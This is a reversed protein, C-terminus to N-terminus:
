KISKVILAATLGGAIFELVTIKTNLTRIKAKQEKSYQEFLENVERLLNEQKQSSAIVLEYNKLLKEHSAKLEALEKKLQRSEELTELLRKQTESSSLLLIENIQKSRISDNLLQRITEEKVSVTKASCVTPLLLLFCLLLSIRRLNM